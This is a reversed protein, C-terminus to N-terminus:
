SVTITSGNWTILGYNNPIAEFTRATAECVRGVANLCVRIERITKRHQPITRYTESFVERGHDVM